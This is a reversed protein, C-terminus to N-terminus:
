VFGNKYGFGFGELSNYLDNTALTYDASTKWFTADSITDLPALNLKKSCSQILMCIILISFIKKM